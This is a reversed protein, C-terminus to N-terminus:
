EGKKLEFYDELEANKNISKAIAYATAKSCAQKGNFIRNITAIALNLENALQTQNIININANEKIIYM